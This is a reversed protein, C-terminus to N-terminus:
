KGEEPFRTRIVWKAAAQAVQTSIGQLVPWLALSVGGIVIVALNEVSQTLSFKEALAAAPYVGSGFCVVSMLVAKRYTIGQQFALAIATGFSAAVASSAKIGSVAAMEGLGSGAVM